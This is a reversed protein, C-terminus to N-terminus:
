SDAKITLLDNSWVLLEFLHLLLLLLLLVLVREELVYVFSNGLTHCHTYLSYRGLQGRTDQRLSLAHWLAHPRM